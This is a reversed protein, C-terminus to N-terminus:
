CVGTPQQQSRDGLSDSDESNADHPGKTNDQAAGDADQWYGFCPSIAKFGPNCPPSGRSSNIATQHNIVARECEKCQGAVIILQDLHVHGNWTVAKRGCAICNRTYIM